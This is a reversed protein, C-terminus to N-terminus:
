HRIRFLAVALSAMGLLGVTAPEPVRLQLGDSTISYAASGSSQGFRQKWYSYDATDVKGDGNGDARRDTTSGLTARWITYDAADVRGNGNYDGSIGTGPGFGVTAAYRGIGEDTGLAFYYRQGSVAAFSVSGGVQSAILTGSSNRVTWEPVLYHSATTQLQITGSKGAVFSFYDLDAVTGVVGNRSASTSVTGLDTATGTTSGFDDAPMLADVAALLNLRKYDQNTEPDFITDATSMMHDYIMQQTVNATGNFQFAERVIVSAGALNPAAMDTGSSLAFDDVIGDRDAVYDPVATTLLRGPAAIARSHRQSFYSLQGDAEDVSMAPIVHPSAAPYSLGPANYNNFSNGASAAIFIGDDELRSLEDEITSWAPVSNSNWESGISLNVTTIPSEFANRNAHVWQLANEIWTFYSAGGDSFVRVGVLDVNPAAGAEGGGDAGIISAVRTGHGNLPGADDYPNSDNELTLDKGGVVRFNAGLGGGLAIHDYAIGSDIIAVTQGRGLLGYKAQVGAAFTPTPVEAATAGSLDSCLLVYATAGHLACIGVARFLFCM